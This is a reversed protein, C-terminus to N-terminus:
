VQGNILSITKSVNRILKNIRKRAEDLDGDTIQMMRAVKLLDYNHQIREVQEKLRSIEEDRAVVQDKLSVNESKLENYSLMLQRVRTTFVKLNEMKADM